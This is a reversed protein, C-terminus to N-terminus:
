RPSETRARRYLLFNSMSFNFVLGGVAGVALAIVPMFGATGWQALVLGFVALNILAGASQIMAYGAAEVALRDLGRGPFTYRRNMWWTVGVATLFSPLRAYWPSWHGYHTLFALISADVCFGVGGVLVFRNFSRSSNRPTTSAPESSQVPTM